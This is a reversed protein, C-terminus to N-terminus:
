RMRAPRPRTSRTASSPVPRTVSTSAHLMERGRPLIYEVQDPTVWVQKTVVYSHVNGDRDYLKVSAGPKLEKVRAFPAPIKPAERFRLVHGWLVINDGEGPRASLNYWGIDHNPVIPIRNKDLGVSLLRGDLKIPNALTRLDPKQPHPTNQVMGIRAVFPNDLAEALDYVPAVPLQGRLRELWHATSARGLEADLIATLRDRNDRRAEMTAFAPDDALDLRGIETLLARWFKDLMCMVFIWGDATKFLQVPTASPHSSRPQRGTRLGENLYWTGPYSLQHLAVDFLSVDIDHGKGTRAVGIMYGVGYGPQRLYLELDHWMTTSNEPLWGKPTNDINFQFAEMLSLENSHMKLDGLARVARLAHLNHVLERARPRGELAGLHM